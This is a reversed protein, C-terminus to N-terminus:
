AAVRLKDCHDAWWQGMKARGDFYDARNYTARIRDVGAHALSAEILDPSWLGSENLLSSATSRFGHASAQTSEYGMRRLAANMTADSIPRKSSRTGPFCLAGGGTADHLARLIELAQRPLPVRHAKRMKMRGAPITWIGAEIDFEAWEAQRLEGPRQFLLAALQLAARVVTSQYGDIARLLGGFEIPDLIAARGTVIPTQLAGKLPATPDITARLTQIAFRFVEGMTALLRRATELRGRAEIVRLMELVEHPSISAVPRNGVIPCALDLLLWRLKELTAPAKGEAAKRAILEEAVLSFTMARSVKAIARDLNRSQIPDNGAKIQARAADRATRAQSLSVEPYAGLALLKEKGDLRYKLRWLKSGNPMVLVFLAKADALKYPKPGPKSKRLSIDTLPM